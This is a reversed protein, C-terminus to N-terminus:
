KRDQCDKWFRHLIRFTWAEAHKRDPLAWWHVRPYRQQWAIVSRSVTKPRLQSLPPPEYLIRSWESEVVVCAFDLGNLRRLEAEFRDRNQGLTCYLDELSKREVAVRHAYGELTYDGTELHCTHWGIVLPRSGDAKDTFLGHFEYPQKERQDILVDVPFLAVDNIPPKKM